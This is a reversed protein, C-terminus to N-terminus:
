FPLTSYTKSSILYMDEYPNLFHITRKDISDVLLVRLVSSSSDYYHVCGKCIWNRGFLCIISGIPLNKAILTTRM